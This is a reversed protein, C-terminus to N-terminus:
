AGIKVIAFLSVYILMVWAIIKAVGMIEYKEWKCIEISSNPFVKQHDFRNPNADTLIMEAKDKEADAYTPTRLRGYFNDLLKKDMPKTIISVIIMPLFSVLFQTVYRLTELLPFSFKELPVGLCHLLFMDAKFMGEGKRYSNGQEDTKVVVKDWFIAREKSAFYKTFREGEKIELPRTTSAKQLDSLEEWHKIEINREVVDITTATYVRELPQSLNTALLAENKNLGMMPALIPLLFTILGAFIVSVWAGTRNARRWLIPTLFAAAFVFGLTMLYKFASWMDTSFMAMTVGGILYVGCFARGVTVYHKESKGPFATKYIGDTLLGSVTIMHADAASMLAAMLCAVMLGSLGIGLSGLLDRTAMGWMMDPDSNDNFYLALIIMGILGWMVGAFRKILMGDVFGLRATKDDKASGAVVIQNAQCLVNPLTLTSMALMFYWTMEANAPSGFLDFVMSPLVKHMAEFAGVVGSSGYIENIKAFGFPILLVTLVLTLISQLVDTKAAAELGGGIAYILVIVALGIVLWSKKFYSFSKRPAEQRLTTLREKQTADLTAYNATELDHLEIAKDYEVREVATLDDLTKPTIAMITKSMALFGIGIIVIFLFAQTFSYLMALGNSKYRLKYFDCMTMVRLRRYWKAAFFYTPLYFINPFTSLMIGSIGMQKVQTTGGVASEASTGQGFMTFTAILRGFKRGGLFFDETNHIKKMSRFGIWIILAFYFVIVILDIIQLGFM